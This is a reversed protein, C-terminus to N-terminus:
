NGRLEDHKCHVPIHRPPVPRKLNPADARRSRSRLNPHKINNCPDEDYGEVEVPHAHGGLVRHLSCIAPGQDALERNSINWHVNEECLNCINQSLDM